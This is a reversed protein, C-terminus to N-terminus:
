KRGRPVAASKPAKGEPFDGRMPSAEPRMRRVAGVRIAAEPCFPVYKKRGTKYLGRRGGWVMRPSGDDRDGDSGVRLDDRNRLQAFCSSGENMREKRERRSDVSQWAGGRRKRGGPERRQERQRLEEESPGVRIDVRIGRRASRGALHRDLRRLERGQHLNAPQQIRPLM